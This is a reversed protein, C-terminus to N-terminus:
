TLPSRPPVSFNALTRIGLCVTPPISRENHGGVKPFRALPPSSRRPSVRSGPTRVERDYKIGEADCWLQFTQLANQGEELSMAVLRPAPLPAPSQTPAAPHRSWSFEGFRSKRTTEHFRSAPLRGRSEEGNEGVRGKFVMPRHARLPTKQTEAAPQTHPIAMAGGAARASVACALNMAFRRAFTRSTKERIETSEGM